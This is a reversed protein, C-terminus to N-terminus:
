RRRAFESSLDGPLMDQETIGIFAHRASLEPFLAPWMPVLDCLKRAANGKAGFQAVASVNLLHRRVRDRLSPLDLPLRACNACAATDLPAHAVSASSRCRILRGLSQLLSRYLSLDEERATPLSIGKANDHTDLVGLLYRAPKCRLRGIM